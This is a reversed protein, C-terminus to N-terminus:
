YYGSGFSYILSFNRVKANDKTVGPLEAHIQYEKAANIIDAKPQWETFFRDKTPAMTPLFSDFLTPTDISDMFDILPFGYRQPRKRNSHTLIMISTLPISEAQVKM